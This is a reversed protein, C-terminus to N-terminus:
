YRICTRACFCHSLDGSISSFPVSRSGVCCALSPLCNVGGSLLHRGAWVSICRPIRKASVCALALCAGGQSEHSKQGLRGWCIGRSGWRHCCSRRRRWSAQIKRRGDDDRAAIRGRDEILRHDGRRKCFFGSSHRRFGCHSSVAGDRDSSNPGSMAPFSARKPPANLCPPLPPPELGGMRYGDRLKLMEAIGKQSQALAEPPNGEYFHSKEQWMRAYGDPDKLRAEGKQAELFYPKYFFKPDVDNLDVFDTIDISHLLPFACDILEMATGEAAKVAQAFTYAVAAHVADRVHEAAPPVIEALLRQRFSDDDWARAVV